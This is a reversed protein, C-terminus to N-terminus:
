GGPQSLGAVAAGAAADVGGAGRGAVPGAGEVARADDGGAPRAAGAQQSLALIRALREENTLGAEHEGTPDTMAHKDVFMGRHRGLDRLAEPKPWLKFEIVEVERADDGNGEWYRRVKVSSIARRASEPIQNMPRLRAETGTGSFDLIEGIDSYAICQLEQLIREVKVETKNALKAQAADIAARIQPIRLLKKGEVAAVNDSKVKYGARKYAATANGDLLYETVFRQRKPSLEPLTKPKRGSM